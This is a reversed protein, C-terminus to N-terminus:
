SRVGSSSAAAWSRKVASSPMLMTPPQQPVVGSCRRRTMSVTPPRAGAGRWGTTSGAQEDM